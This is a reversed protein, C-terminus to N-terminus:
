APPRRIVGSYRDSGTSPWTRAPSQEVAVADGAHGVATVTAASM